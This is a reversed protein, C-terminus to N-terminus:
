GCSRKDGLQRNALVLLPDSFELPTMRRNVFNRGHSWWEIIILSCEDEVLPQLKYAMSSPFAVVDGRKLNIEQTPEDGNHDGLRLLAGWGSTADGLTAIMTYDSGVDAERHFVNDIRCALHAIMRVSLKPAIDSGIMRDTLSKFRGYLHDPLDYNLLASQPAGPLQSGDGTRSEGSSSGSSAQALTDLQELYVPHLAQRVISHSQGRELGLQDARSEPDTREGAYYHVLLSEIQAPCDDIQNWGKSSMELVVAESFGQARANRGAPAALAADELTMQEKLYSDIFVTLNTSVGDPYDRSHYFWGRIAEAQRGQAGFFNLSDVLIRRYYRRRRLEAPINVDVHLVGKESVCMVGARREGIYYWRAVGRGPDNWDTWVKLKFREEDEEATEQDQEVVEYVIPPESQAPEDSHPSESQEAVPIAEGEAPPGILVPPCTLVALLRESNFSYARQGTELPIQLIKSADSAGNTRAVLAEHVQLLIESDSPLRSQLEQGDTLHLTVDVLTTEADPENVKSTARAENSM